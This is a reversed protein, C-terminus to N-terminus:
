RVRRTNIIGPQKELSAVVGSGDFDYWDGATVLENFLTQAKTAYYGMKQREANDESGFDAIMPLVYEALATYVCLDNFENHRDAIYDADLAPIDAVAGLPITTHKTGSIFYLRWWDTNRLQSLIRETARVLTPDIISSDNLGENTDFLLQDRAVVDAFEAFAVVNGKEKVFAM